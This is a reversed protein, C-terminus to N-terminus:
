FQKTFRLLLRIRNIFSLASKLEHQRRLVASKGEEICEDIKSFDAWHVHDLHPHILVDADILNPENVRFNLIEATRKLINFGTKYSGKQVISGGLFVGIVIDVGMRRCFRTPLDTTIGGDILVREDYIVPPFIGPIAASAWTGIMLPGHDFVFDEGTNLDLAVTAFRIRTQEFTTDKFFDRFIRETKRVDIQSEKFLLKGMYFKEALKHFITGDGRFANLGLSLFDQSQIIETAKEKLGESTGELAFLGGIIAGISTGVVADFKIGMTELANLVGIHALGKAGGGGLAIGVKLRLM